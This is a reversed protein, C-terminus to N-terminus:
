SVLGVIGEEGKSAGDGDSDVVSKYAIANDNSRSQM